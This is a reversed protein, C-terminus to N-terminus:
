SVLHPPPIRTLFSVVDFVGYFSHAITISADPGAPDIIANSYIIEDSKAAEFRSIMAAHETFFHTTMRKAFLVEQQHGPDESVLSTYIHRIRHSDEPMPFGYRDFFIAHVLGDFFNDFRAIDVPYRRAGADLWEAGHNMMTRFSPSRELGPLISRRFIQKPLNEGTAAHMCIHTLLYQDDKSKDNNHIACSPVTKLQLNGGKPFFAKPPFHERTEALEGCRYCTKGSSKGM